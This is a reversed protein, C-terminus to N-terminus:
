LKLVESIANIQAPKLHSVSDFIKWVMEYVRPDAQVPMSYRMKSFKISEQLAIKEENTLKAAEELKSVIAIGPIGKRGGALASLYSPDVGILYALEKQRMQRSRCLDQIFVSFPTMKEIKLFFNNDQIKYKNSYFQSFINIILYKCLKKTIKKTIFDLMFLPCLKIESSNM